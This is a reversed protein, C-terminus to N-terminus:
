GRETVTRAIAIWSDALSELRQMLSHDTVVEANRLLRAANGLANQSTIPEAPVAMSSREDNMARTPAAYIRPALLSCGPCAASEIVMRGNVARGKFGSLFLGESGAVEFPVEAPSPVREFSKNCRPCHFEM